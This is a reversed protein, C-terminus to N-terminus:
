LTCGRLSTFRGDHRVENKSLATQLDEMAQTMNLQGDMGKVLELLSRKLEFLLINMRNCEQVAVVVYPGQETDLIGNAQSKPCAGLPRPSPPPAPPRPDCALVINDDHIPM